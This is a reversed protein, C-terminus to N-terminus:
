RNRFNIRVGLKVSSPPAKELIEIEISEAELKKIADWLELQVARKPSLRPKSQYDQLTLIKGRYNLFFDPWAEMARRIVEPSPANKGERYNYVTQREVQLKKAVERASTTQLLERIRLSFEAKLEPDSPKRPM